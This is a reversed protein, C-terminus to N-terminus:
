SANPIIGGAKFIGTIEQYHSVLLFIVALWLLYYAITNGAKTQVLAIMILIFLLWAALWNIASSM